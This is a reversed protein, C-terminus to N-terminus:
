SGQLREFITMFKEDNRARGLAKTLANVRQRWEPTEQEVLKRVELLTLELRRNRLKSLAGEPRFWLTWYDCDQWVYQKAKLGPPRCRRLNYDYVGVQWSVQELKGKPWEFGEPILGEEILQGRTGSFVVHMYKVMEIHMESKGVTEAQIM